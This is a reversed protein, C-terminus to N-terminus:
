GVISNIKFTENDTKYYQTLQAWLMILEPNNAVPVQQQLDLDLDMDMDLNLDLDMDLGMRVNKPQHM